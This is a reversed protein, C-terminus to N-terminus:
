NIYLEYAFFHELPFHVNPPNSYIYIRHLKLGLQSVSCKQGGHTGECEEWSIEGEAGQKSFSSNLNKEGYNAKGISFSWVFLVV